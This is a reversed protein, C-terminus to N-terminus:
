IRLPVRSAPPDPPFKEARAAFPVIAASPIPLAAAAVPGSHPVSRNVTLGFSITLDDDHDCVHGQGNIADSGENSQTDHCAQRPASPDVEASARTACLIECATASVPVGTVIAALLFAGLRLLM